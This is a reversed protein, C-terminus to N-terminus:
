WLGRCVPERDRQEIAAVLLLSGLVVMFTFGPIGTVSTVLFLEPVRYFAVGQYFPFLQPNFFELTVFWAAAAFPWAAGSVSRLYGLGLGFIGVYLGEFLAFLVLALAGLAPSVGAFRTVTEAIWYFLSLHAAVGILWGALSVAADSRNMIEVYERANEDGDPNIMIENIIVDSAALSTSVGLILALALTALFAPLRSM